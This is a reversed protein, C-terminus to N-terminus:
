ARILDRWVKSRRPGPKKAATRAVPSATSTRTVPWKGASLQRCFGARRRRLHPLLSAVIRVSTNSRRLITKLRRLRQPRLLIAAGRAMSPRVKEWYVTAGIGLNKCAVSLADTQAMKYAEDSMRPGNKENAVFASGGVGVIPKSWEDQEEPKIYLHIRVFAAVEGTDTPELWEREVTYYWGIGCPGFMETLKRIRWMPNIETVGKLRGAGITKKAEAPVTKGAEYIKMNDMM